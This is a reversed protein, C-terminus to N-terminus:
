LVATECYTIFNRMVSWCQLCCQCQSCHQVNDVDTDNIAKIHCRYQVNYVDTNNNDIADVANCDANIM